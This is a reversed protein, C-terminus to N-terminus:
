IYCKCKVKCVKVIRWLLTCLCKNLNCRLSRRVFSCDCSRWVDALSVACACVLNAVLYRNVINEISLVSLYLINLPFEWEVLICKFEVWKCHRCDIIAKDVSVAIFTVSWTKWKVVKGATLLKNLSYKSYLCCTFCFYVKINNIKCKSLEVSICTM